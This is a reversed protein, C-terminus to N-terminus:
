SKKSCFAGNKKWFVKYFDASFGSTGPSRNNKMNKLVLAAEQISIEGEIADSQQDNLTPIHLDNLFDNNSNDSEICKSKSYLSAYFSKVEDLIQKQNSVETGDDKVIRRITKISSNKKELGCFFFFVVLNRAM